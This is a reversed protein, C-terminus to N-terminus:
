TTGYQKAVWARYAGSAVNQVWESNDLYWSVTKRIGTEFTEAPRWGLEAKARANSVRKCEAWFRQAAPSLAATLAGLAAIALFSRRDM